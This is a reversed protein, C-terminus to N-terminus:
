LKHDLVIGPLFFDREFDSALPPPQMSRCYHATAHTTQRTAEEAREWRPSRLRARYHSM